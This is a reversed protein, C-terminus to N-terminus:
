RFLVGQTMKGTLYRIIKEVNREMSAETKLSTLYRNIEKQHSPPLSAFAKKAQNNKALEAALQKPIPVIIPEPDFELKVTVRDGVAVGTDERMYTNLYLRWLGRFKVVTQTFYKGKLTGKVPISGKDKKAAKQLERLVKNPIPVYPNIDVIEVISSFKQKMANM